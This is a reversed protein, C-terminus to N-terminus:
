SNLSAPSEPRKRSSMSIESDFYAGPEVHLQPAVVKGVVRGLRTVTVHNAIIEGRVFGDVWVRDARIIGEVRATEAIVLLTGTETAHVEGLLSGHIRANKAFTITGEMKSGESLLNLESETWTWESM